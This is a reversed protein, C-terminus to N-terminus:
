LDPQFETGSLAGARAVVIFTEQESNYLSPKSDEKPMQISPPDFQARELEKGFVPLQLTSNFPPTAASIDVGAKFKVPTPTVTV